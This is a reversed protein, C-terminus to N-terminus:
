KNQCTTTGNEKVVEREKRERRKITRLKRFRVFSAYCKELPSDLYKGMGEGLLERRTKQKFNLFM